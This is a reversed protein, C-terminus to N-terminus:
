EPPTLRVDLINPQAKLTARKTHSSVKSAHSMQILPAEEALVREAIWTGLM